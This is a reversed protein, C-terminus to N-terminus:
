GTATTTTRPRAQGGPPGDGAEVAAATLPPHTAGGRRVRAGTCRGTRRGCAGRRSSWLKGLPCTATAMDTIHARTSTAGYRNRPATTNRTDSQAALMSTAVTVALQCRGLSVM